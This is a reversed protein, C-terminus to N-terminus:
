SSWRRRSRASSPSWSSTSGSCPWAHLGRGHRPLDGLHSEWEGDWLLTPADDSIPQGFLRIDPRPLDEPWDEGEILEAVAGMGYIPAEYRGALEGMVMDAFRGDRRYIVPSGEVERVSVVDGLEVVTRDGPLLQRPRAHLAPARGM